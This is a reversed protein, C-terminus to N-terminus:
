PRKQLLEARRTDCCVIGGGPLADPFEIRRALVCTHRLPKGRPSEVADRVTPVHQDPQRKEEACPREDRPFGRVAFFDGAVHDDLEELVGTEKGAHRHADVVGLRLLVLRVM